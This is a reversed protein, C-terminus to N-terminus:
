RVSRPQLAGTPMLRGAVPIAEFPAESSVVPKHGRLVSMWERTSDAIIVVVSVMFFITVVADLYDNFIM